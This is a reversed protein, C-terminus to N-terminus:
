KKAGNGASGDRRVETRLTLTVPLKISSTPRPLLLHIWKSVRQISFSEGSLNRNELMLEISSFKRLEQSSM